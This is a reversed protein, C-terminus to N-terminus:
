DRRPTVPQAQQRYWDRWIVRYVRLGHPLRNLGPIV